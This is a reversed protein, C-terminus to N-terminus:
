ANGSIKTFKLFLWFDYFFALIEANYAKKYKHHEIKM